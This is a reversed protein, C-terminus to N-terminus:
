RVAREWPKPDDLPMVRAVPSRFAITALLERREDLTLGTVDRGDFWLVDFVYYDANGLRGWAGTAEGDLIVDHVQLKEIARAVAPYSDALPLQNRSLM